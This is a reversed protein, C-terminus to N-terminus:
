IMIRCGTSKSCGTHLFRSLEQQYNLDNKDDLSNGSM